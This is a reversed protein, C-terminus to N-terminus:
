KEERLHITKMLESAERLLRDRETLFIDIDTGAKERALADIILFLSYFVQDKTLNFAPFSTNIKIKLRHGTVSFKYPPELTGIDEFAYSYSLQEAKPQRSDINLKASAFLKSTVNAIKQKKNESLSSSRQALKRSEALTNTFTKDAWIATRVIQWEPSELIFHRKNLTVPVNDLHIEGIIRALSPHGGAEVIEYEDKKRPRLLEKNYAAILRNQRFLHLGFLGKISGTELLGVWGRIKTGDPLSLIGTGGLKREGDILKYKEPKCALGNIKLVINKDELFPRYRRSFSELVQNNRYSYLWVKLESIEITTFHQKIDEKKETSYPISWNADDVISRTWSEEDYDVCLVEPNGAQSTRLTFRKGLSTCAAKMGIGFLGHRSEEKRIKAIRLAENLEKFSMGEANDEILLQKGNAKFSINVILPEPHEKFTESEKMHNYSDLSNDVFEALADPFFYDQSGLYPLLHRSPTINLNHDNLDPM